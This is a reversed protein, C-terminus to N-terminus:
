KLFLYKKISTMEPSSLRVFYLGSKLSWTPLPLHHKGANCSVSQHFLRRGAVDYIGFSIRSPGLLTFFLFGGRVLIDTIQPLGREEVPIRPQPIGTALSQTYDSRRSTDAAISSRLYYYYTEHPTVTSDTYITDTAPITSLLFFNNTDNHSRYLLYRDVLPDPHRRWSIQICSDLGASQIGSPPAPYISPQPSNRSFFQLSRRLIDLKTSSRGYADQCASIVFSFLLSKHPIEKYFSSYACSRYYVIKGENNNYFIPLSTGYINTSDIIDVSNRPGTNGSANHPAYFFQLGEYPTGALGRLTDLAIFQGDDVLRCGFYRYMFTTDYNPSGPIGLYTWAIDSGDMLVPRGSDMFQKLLMRASPEIIGPEIGAQPERWGNTIFVADFPDPLIFEQTCVVQYGLAQLGQLLFQQCGITDLPSPFPLDPNPFTAGQDNDWLWIAVPQASLSVTLLSLSLFFVLYKM